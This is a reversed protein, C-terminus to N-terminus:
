DPRNKKKFIQGFRDILVHWFLGPGYRGQGNQCLANVVFLGNTVAKVCYASPALYKAARANVAVSHTHEIDRVSAKLFISCAYPTGTM